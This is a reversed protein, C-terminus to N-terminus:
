SDDANSEDYAEIESDCDTRFGANNLTRVTPGFDREAVELKEGHKDANGVIEFEIKEARLADIASQPIAMETVIAITQMDTDRKRHNQTGDPYMNM